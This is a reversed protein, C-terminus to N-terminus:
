TKGLDNKGSGHFFSPSLSASPFSSYLFGGGKSPCPTHFCSPSLLPVLLLLLPDLPLVEPLSVMPVLFQHVVFMYSVSHSRSVTMLSKPFLIVTVNVSHGNMMQEGGLNLHWNGGSKLNCCQPFLTHKHRPSGTSLGTNTCFM